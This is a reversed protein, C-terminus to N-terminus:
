KGAILAAIRQEDEKRSRGLGFALLPTQQLQSGFGALAMTEAPEGDSSTFAVNIVFVCDKIRHKKRLDLLESLFADMAKQAADLSEFPRSMAEYNAPDPKFLTKQQNSM